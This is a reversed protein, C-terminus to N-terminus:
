EMLEKYYNGSKGKTKIFHRDQKTQENKIILSSRQIGELFYAPKVLIFIQTYTYVLFLFACFIIKITDGKGFNLVHYFIQCFINFEHVHVKM